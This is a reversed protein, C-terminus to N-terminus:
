LPAPIENTIVVSENIVAPPTVQITGDEKVLYLWDTPESCDKCIARGSGSPVGNIIQYPTRVYRHSCQEM